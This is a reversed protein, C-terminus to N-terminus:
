LRERAIFYHAHISTRTKIAVIIRQHAFMLPIYICIYINIYVYMCVYLVRDERTMERAHVRGAGSATASINGRKRSASITIWRRNKKEESFLLIAPFRRRIRSTRLGDLGTRRDGIARELGEHEPYTLSIVYATSQQAPSPRTSQDPRASTNHM